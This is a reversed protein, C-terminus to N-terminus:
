EGKFSQNINGLTDNLTAIYNTLYERCQEVRGRVQTIYDKDRLVEFIVFRKEFPIEDEWLVEEGFNLFAPTNVLGHFVYAKPKDYLEMYVQMQARYAEALPATANNCLSNFSWSSKVDLIFGTHVVDAEGTLHTDELKTKNKAFDIDFYQSAMAITRLETMEDRGKLIEKTSLEGKGGTLWDHCYTKAGASIASGRGAAMIASCKSGRIKFENPQKM